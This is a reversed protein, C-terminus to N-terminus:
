CVLPGPEKGIVRLGEQKPHIKTELLRQDTLEHNRLGKGQLYLTLMSASTITKLEWYVNLM